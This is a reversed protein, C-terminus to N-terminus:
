IKNGLLGGARLLFDGELFNWFLAAVGVRRKRDTAAGKRWLDCFLFLRANVFLSDRVVVVDSASADGDVVNFGELKIKLYQRPSKGSTGDADWHRM